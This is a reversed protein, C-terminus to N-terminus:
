FTRPGLFGEGNAHDLTGRIKDRLTPPPNPIRHEAHGQARNPAMRPAPNLRATIAATIEDPAADTVQDIFAQSDMLANVTAHDVGLRGAAKIVALATTPETMGIADPVTVPVAEPKPTIPRGNHDVAPLNSRLSTAIRQRQAYPTGQDAPPKTYDQYTAM